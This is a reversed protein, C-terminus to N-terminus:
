ARRSSRSSAVRPTSLQRERFGEKRVRWDSDGSRGFSCPRWTAVAFHTLQQVALRRTEPEADGLLKWM